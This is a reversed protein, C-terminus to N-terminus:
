LDIITAPHGTQKAAKKLVRVVEEHCTFLIVQRQTALEALARAAGVRRAADFNVLIDDALIPIARGVNEATTLLAIRLALYLQQCTGLSLHVPARTVKLADTVQLTGEATLSVETWRGNTMLALLRSAKEYVEPQRKSEWAAIAAELMRKALLLRAFDARAEDLRTNLQQAESKLRDFEHEDCAAALTATLEGVRQNLAEFAELLGARQRTRHALEEEIDELTADGDFHARSLAREREATVEELRQLTQSARSAAAQQRQVCLAIASRTERAEDLLTRAQRISGEAQALGEEELARRVREALREAEVNCAELKKEDQVMVWRADDFREKRGQDERDPRFIMAFGAVTMLAAFLLLAMGLALYTMSGVARGQLFLPIGLIFLVVPVIISFLIQLSRKSRRNTADRKTDAATEVLADYVAKSSVYNSRAAEVTHSQRAEQEALGDLRDRLARDEAASLSALRSGVQQELRKRERVATGEDDRLRQLERQLKRQEADLSEVAAQASALTEVLRNAEEVRQAMAQREPELEHLERDQDRLRDAQEAAAHQRERLEARQASLRVLSNEATVSRSTYAALRENVHALAHAPSSGTGSGATLLKATTDTTNRLSRLEDSNLSFMTRFTDKDIDEALWLDGQLGDANRRRFLSAMDRSSTPSEEEAVKGKGKKAPEPETEPGRPAFFLSGSREIGEPRYTNRNGRADEWGFLVGGVFSAVTTKGAENQGYVINMHSGFPGITRRSFLGFNEIRLHQLYFRQDKADM